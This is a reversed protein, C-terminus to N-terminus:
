CKLSVAVYTYSCHISVASYVYLVNTYKHIVIFAMICTDWQICEIASLSVGRNCCNYMCLQIARVHVYMYM